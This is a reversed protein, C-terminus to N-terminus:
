PKGTAGDPDKRRGRRGMGRARVGLWATVGGLLWGVALAVVLAGGKPLKAQVFGFDFSVLDANLAGFVVGAVVCALLLVIILIRM